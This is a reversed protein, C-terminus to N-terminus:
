RHSDFDLNRVQVGLWQSRAECDSSHEAASGGTDETGAVVVTVSVLNHDTSGISVTGDHGIAPSSSVPGNTSFTWNAVVSSGTPGAM